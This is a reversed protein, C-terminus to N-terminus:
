GRHLKRRRRRPILNGDHRLCPTHVPRMSNIWRKNQGIGQFFLPCQNLLDKVILTSKKRNWFILFEHAPKIGMAPVHRLSRQDSNRYCAHPHPPRRWFGNSNPCFTLDRANKWRRCASSSVGDNKKM